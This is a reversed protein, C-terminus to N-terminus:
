RVRDRIFPNNKKEHGITSNEGHGCRVILDDHLTFIVEKISKDIEKRNGGPLDTRGIAERFLTDGTFLSDGAQFCMCGPTHGPTHFVRIVEDGIELEDGHNLYSDIVPATVKPYGLFHATQEIAQYLYLDKENAYAPLDLSEALEYGGAIHDLHLHTYLIFKPIIKEQEIIKIIFSADGAPDIIFGHKSEPEHVVFTNVLLPRYIVANVTIM